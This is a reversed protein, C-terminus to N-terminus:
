NKESLSRAEGALEVRDCIINTVEGGKIIGINATTEEDIRQLNMQSIAEAATRIACIGGKEPEM